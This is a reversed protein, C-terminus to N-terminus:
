IQNSQRYQLRQGYFEDPARRQGSAKQRAKEARTMGRSVSRFYSYAAVEPVLILHHLVHLPHGTM